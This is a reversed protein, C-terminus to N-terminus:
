PKKRKNLPNKGTATPKMLRTGTSPDKSLKGPILVRTSLIPSLLLM